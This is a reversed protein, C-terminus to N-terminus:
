LGLADMEEEEYQSDEAPYRLSSDYKGSQKALAWILSEGAPINRPVEEYISDQYAEEASIIEWGEKEFHSILDDVFLAAALNHHLLLNHKIQRGTLAFSLSDYYQAREFLHKIYFSRYASLDTKPNTKLRNVLRSNVYWDSADISVHGIKYGKSALFDRFGDRKPVTNGEKLFPFRFLKTFNTYSNILSDTKLLEKKFQDLSVAESNLSPHSYTHNGILHGAKNWGSIIEQGRPNDLGGGKVFLIAEVKNQQLKDLLLQNWETNPYNPFDRTSGDDFSFSIQPKIQEKEEEIAVSCSAVMVALLYITLRLIEKKRNM